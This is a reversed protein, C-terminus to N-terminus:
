YLDILVGVAGYDHEEEEQTEPMDQIEDEPANGLLNGEDFLDTASLDIAMRTNEKDEINDQIKDQLKEQAKDLEDQAEEQAEEQVGREEEEIERQIERLVRTKEKRRGIDIERNEERVQADTMHDMDRHERDRGNFNNTSWYHAAAYATMAEQRSSSAYPFDYDYAPYEKNASPAKFPADRQTEENGTSRGDHGNGVRSNNRAGAANSDWPAAQPANRALPRRSEPSGAKAVMAGLNDEFARIVAADMETREIVIASEPWYVYAPLSNRAGNTGCLKCAFDNMLLTKQSATGKPATARFIKLLADNTLTTTSGAAGAADGDGGGDGAVGVTSVVGGKGKGDGKLRFVGSFNKVVEESMRRVEEWTKRRRRMQERDQQSLGKQAAMHCRNRQMREDEARELAAAMGLCNGGCPEAQTGRIAVVHGCTLLHTRSHSTQCPRSEMRPYGICPTWRAAPQQVTTIRLYKRSELSNATHLVAYHFPVTVGKPLHRAYRPPARAQSAM